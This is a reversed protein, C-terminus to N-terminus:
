YIVFVIRLREGGKLKDKYVDQGLTQAAKGWLPMIPTALWAATGYTRRFPQYSLTDPAPGAKLYAVM